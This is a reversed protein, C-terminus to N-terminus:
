QKNTKQQNSFALAPSSCYWSCTRLSGVFILSVEHYLTSFKTNVPAFFLINSYSHTIVPFLLSWFLNDDPSDNEYLVGGFFLVGIILLRPPAEEISAIYPPQNLLDHKTEGLTKSSGYRM